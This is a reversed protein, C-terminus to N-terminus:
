GGSRSAPGDRLVSLLQRVRQDWRGVERVREVGRDVHAQYADIHELLSRLHDAPTDLDLNIAPDFGLLAVLDRPSRGVILCGSALAELYRQTLVEVSGARSPHTDSAPFCLSIRSNALGSVLSARSDFV